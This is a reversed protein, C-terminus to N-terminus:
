QPSRIINFTSFAKGMSIQHRFSVINYLGTLYANMYTREQEQTNTINQDQAFLILPKSLKNINSVSFLPLTEVSVNYVGKMYARKNFDAAVSIPDAELRRDMELLLGPTENFAKKYARIAGMVDADVEGWSKYQPNKSLDIRLKNAIKDFAEKSVEGGGYTNHLNRIYRMVSTPDQPPGDTYKTPLIGAIGAAFKKARRGTIGHTLNALIMGKNDAVNLRLVNPNQTNFLLVPIDTNKELVEKLKDKAGELDNDKFAFDSPVFQPDGFASSLAVRKHAIKSVTERYEKSFYIPYDLSHLPLDDPTEGKHYYTAYLVQNITNLDGIILFPQDKELERGGGFLHTGSLNERWFKCLRANTEFYVVPTIPYDSSAAAKIKDLTDYLINASNLINKKETYTLVPYFVRDEFFSNRNEQYSAGGGYQENYFVAEASGETRRRDESKYKTTVHIGFLDLANKLRNLRDEDSLMVPRRVGFSTGLYANTLPLVVRSVGSSKNARTDTAAEQISKLCVQNLDPMIVAVNNLSVLQTGLRRLLDTILVHIDANGLGGWEGEPFLMKGKKFYDSNKFTNLVGQGYLPGEDWNLYEGEAKVVADLDYGKLSLMASVDEGAIGDEKALGISNARAHPILRIRIKKVGQDVDINVGGLITTHPGSWNDFNPGIGYAVYIHKFPEETKLFIESLSDVAKEYYEKAFLKSDNMKQVSVLPETRRKAEYEVITDKDHVTKYDEDLLFTKEFQNQPDLMTIDMYNKGRSFEHVFDLFNPNNQANLLLAESSGEKLFSNFAVESSVIDLIVEESYSVVVYPVPINSM